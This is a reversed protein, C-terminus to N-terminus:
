GENKNRFKAHGKRGNQMETELQNVKDEMQAINQEFYQLLSLFKDSPVSMSHIVSLFFYRIM